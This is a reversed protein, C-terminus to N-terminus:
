RNTEVQGNPPSNTPNSFFEDGPLLKEVSRIPHLLENPVYLPVIRPKELTGTVKYEFLKSFPTTFLSILWGIVPTNRLLQAQVNANVHQQLDVTGAYQLRMGTSNITLPDSYIVGNTITFHASADTARSNGLGPVVTNLMPSVIAIMPVDWLLGNRVDINGFGDVSRWDRTDARTVTVNGSLLGQLHNSPSSLDDSLLHVDVKAVGAKFYFEAGEHPVSFDFVAFGNGSGNYLEAVINTLILTEGLWHITGTVNKAHFKLCSFQEGHMVDFTLDADDIDRVGNVDRLPACGNVHVTPHKEFHYPDLFHGTKEGIARAVSNPDATSVGNKFWILEKPFDLVIEDATMTEEGRKMHPKFFKLVRNTYIFDGACEDAPEGRVAFNTATVFGNAGLSDPNNIQGYVNGDVYIPENFRLHNLVRVANSRTLFPRAIEPEVAGRVRWRFNQTIENQRGEMQLHTNGQLLSLNVVFSNIDGADGDVTLTLQPRPQMKALSDYFEQFQRRWGTGTPKRGHFADWDRLESAHVIKGALALKAGAFTAKFNDLSWTDNTEFHLQSNINELAIINTPSFRWVLRGERLMLGELQFKGHLLAPFDPQVQVEALALTPSDPVKIDGVHVNEAILGGFFHLRLRVFDLDVGHARLKEVLPKKLFDPLGIQNFWLLAFIVALIIALVVRRLWRWGIRIKRWFGFRM